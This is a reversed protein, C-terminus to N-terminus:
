GACGGLFVDWDLGMIQDSVAVRLIGDDGLSHWYGARDSGYIQTVGCVGGGEKQLAVIDGHNSTLLLVDGVDTMQTLGGIDGPLPAQWRPEVNGDYAHLMMGDFLYLAGDATYLVSGAGGGAPADDMALAWSGDALIAWLGGETYARLEGNPASVVSGVERLNARDLLQGQLSITLMERTETVLGIVQAAVEARVVPPVDAMQWRVQERDAGFAVLDSAPTQFILWDPQIVVPKGLSVGTEWREALTGDLNVHQMGGDAFTLLPRGDLDTISVAQRELNIRWLSRGDPTVRGLRNRDLYLLSHDDLELLPAIPGAEDALDLRWRFAPELWVAWNHIV